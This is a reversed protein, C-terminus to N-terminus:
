FLKNIDNFLKEFKEITGLSFFSEDNGNKMAAIAPSYHNYRSVGLYDAIRKTIPHNTTDLKTKEIKNSPYALNYFEIYEDISFMDEIDSQGSGNSAYMDFFLVNKDKIIKKAIMDNLRKKGKQDTFTDLICVIKLQSGRLLSIFSSVKDLGGVPVITIDDRLTNINKKKHVEKMVEFYILDGPGEVLLNNESIFLNQAIDYGLAAQLPFLTDPDKEQISESVISGKKPDLTDYVTRIRHIKSTEIMFPSHTTYVVQYYPALKENIYRLLDAQASAHLNLGPEDLLIIYQKTKDAQIRSFWVLFSFFWIFGKSRNGLPLSVRHKTNRIRVNLYRRLVAPNPEPVSEIEFKIELHQNTKWYEFLEDSIANSTAELESIYSEYNSAKVFEKIDVRSLELLAKSIKLNDETFIQDHQNNLVKNLDIRGPLNFYEDFYWFVPQTKSLITKAVYGELKNGWDWSDNEIEELKQVLLSSANLEQAKIKLEDFKRIKKLADKEEKTIEINSLLYIIAEKEDICVGRYIGSGDYKQTYSFEFFSLSKSGFIKQIANKDKEELRYSITVISNQSPNDTTKWENKPYDFTEDFKFRQDSDFYNIKAIAELIATKGSENKGVICTVDPDFDFEQDLTFSKYKHIIAKTLIM